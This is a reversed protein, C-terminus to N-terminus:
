AAAGEMAMRRAAHADLYLQRAAERLEPPLWGAAQARELREPLSSMLLAERTAKFKLLQSAAAIFEKIVNAPALESFAGLMIAVGEEAEFREALYDAVVVERVRRLTLAVTEPRDSELGKICLSMMMSKSLMHVGLPITILLVAGKLLTASFQEGPKSIGTFADEAATGQRAARRQATRAEQAARAAAMAPSLGSRSIPGSSAAAAARGSTSAAESAPASPTGVPFLARLLVM